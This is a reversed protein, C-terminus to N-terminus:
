HRNRPRAARRSSACRFRVKSLFSDVDGGRTTGAFAPRANAVTPDISCHAPLQGRWGRVAMLSSKFWHFRGLTQKDHHQQKRQRLASGGRLGRAIGCGSLRVPFTVRRGRRRAPVTVAGLALAREPRIEGAASQIGRLEHLGHALRPPDHRSKDLALQAILLGGIEGGIKGAQRLGGLRGFPPELDGGARRGSLGGQDIDAAALAVADIEVSRAAIEAGDIGVEIVEGVQDVIVGGGQRLV